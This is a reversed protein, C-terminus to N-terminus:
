DLSANAMVGDFEVFVRKKAHGAPLTFSKRYWGVGSPLFGGDKGTPNKEGFPGEISWDHPVDLARWAADDFNPREAGPADAKLFRWGADFSDTVRVSGKAAQAAAREPCVVMLAAALSLVVSLATLRKPLTRAFPSKRFSM